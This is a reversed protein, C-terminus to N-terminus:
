FLDISAFRECVVHAFAVSEHMFDISGAVQEEFLVEILIGAGASGFLFGKVIAEIMSRAMTFAIFGHAKAANTITKIEIKIAFSSLFYLTRKPPNINVKATNM